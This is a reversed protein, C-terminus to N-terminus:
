NSRESDGLFSLEKRDGEGAANMGGKKKYAERVEDCSNGCDDDTM